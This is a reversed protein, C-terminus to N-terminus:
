VLAHRVGYVAAQVRNDVGLKELVAAVHRKVTSASLHLQTAIEANERGEVILALVTLERPTLRAVVGAPGTTSAAAREHDRLRRVLSSVLAPSIMSRGAAAERVAAVIEPVPADKLVYGAAGATIAAVVDADSFSMTLVLVAGASGQTMIEATAERGDVEPMELDMLVVDPRLESALRIANAGNSAEGVVDFGYETLFERLGRRFLAHDDAILLTIPRDM